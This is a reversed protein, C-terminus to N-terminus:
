PSGDDWLDEVRDRDDAEKAAAVAARKGALIQLQTELETYGDREFLDYPSIGAHKDIVYGLSRFIADIKDM